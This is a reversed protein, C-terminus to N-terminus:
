IYDGSYKISSGDGDGKHTPKTKTVLDVYPKSTTLTTGAVLGKTNRSALSLIISKWLSRAEASYADIGIVVSQQRGPTGTTTITGICSTIDIVVGDKEDRLYVSEVGTVPREMM